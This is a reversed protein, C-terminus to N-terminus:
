ADNPRLLIGNCLLKRSAKQERTSHRPRSSKEKEWFPVFGWRALEMLLGGEEDARIIPQFTTPRIDDNPALILSDISARQCSVNRFKKTQRIQPSISWVYRYEGPGLTRQPMVRYSRRHLVLGCHAAQAANQPPTFTPWGGSRSKTLQQRSPM